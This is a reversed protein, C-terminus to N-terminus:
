KRPEMKIVNGSTQKLYLDAGVLRVDNCVAPLRKFDMCVRGPEARWSGTDAGGPYFIALGNAQKAYDVRLIGNRAPVDFSKGALAASVEQATPVRNGAPFETMPPTSACGWLLASALAAAATFAQGPLSKKRTNM